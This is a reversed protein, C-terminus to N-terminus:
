SNKKLRGAAIGEGIKDDGLNAFSGEETGSSSLNNLLTVLAQDGHIRTWETARSIDRQQLAKTIEAHQRYTWCADSFSCTPAKSRMVHSLLHIDNTAKILWSNHAAAVLIRHFRRDIELWRDMSEGELVRDPVERLSVVIQRMQDNLSQMSGLEHQEIKRAAEKAAFLDLWARFSFLDVMESANLKRVYAGANPVHEVVGDSALRHIAERVTVTSVGLEEGLTRNVLRDGPKLDGSWVKDRLRTYAFEM